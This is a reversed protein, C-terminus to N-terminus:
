VPTVGAFAYGTNNHKADYMAADAKKLLDEATEGDDPFIAIGISAELKLSVDGIECAASVAHIMKGAMVAANLRDKIELMLYLFEDGGQRSVTDMGRVCAQLRGAVIQLVKDGADHGHSDNIGKFKDLDIFMVALRWRHRGAQLLAHQLRDNFLNRNALGTLTDHFALHRVMEEKAQTVVLERELHKREDIEHVLADKMSSLDQACEQIKTEVAKSQDLARGVAPSALSRGIKREIESNAASLQSACEEVRGMVRESKNLLVLLPAHKGSLPARRRKHISM